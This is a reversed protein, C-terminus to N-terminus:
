SQFSFNHFRFLFFFVCVTLFCARCVKITSIIRSPNSTESVHIIFDFMPKLTEVCVCVCVCLTNLLQFYRLAFFPLLTIFRAVTVFHFAPGLHSAICASLRFYWSNESTIGYLITAKSLYQVFLLCAYLLSFFVCM